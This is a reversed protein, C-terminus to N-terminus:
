KAGAPRARVTKAHYAPARFACWGSLAASVAHQEHERHEQQAGQDRRAVHECGLVPSEREDQAIRARWAARVM